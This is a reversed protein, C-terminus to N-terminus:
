PVMIIIHALDGTQSKGCIITKCRPPTVSLRSVMWVCNFTQMWFQVNCQHFGDRIHCSVYMFLCMDHMFVDGSQFKYV